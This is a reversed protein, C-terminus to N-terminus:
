LKLNTSAVRWSFGDFDKWRELETCNMDWLREKHWYCARPHKCKIMEEHLGRTSDALPFSNLNDTRPDLELYKDRRQLYKIQLDRFRRLSVEYFYFQNIEEDDEARRTVNIMPKSSIAHLLKFIFWFMIVSIFAFSASRVKSVARTVNGIDQSLKVDMYHEASPFINDTARLGIARLTSELSLNM